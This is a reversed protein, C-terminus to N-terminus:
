KAGRLTRRLWYASFAAVALAIIQFTTTPNINMAAIVGDPKLNKRSEVPDFM